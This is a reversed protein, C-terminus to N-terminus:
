VWLSLRQDLQATALALHGLLHGSPAGVSLDRLGEEDRLPGDFAVNLLYVVLEPEVRPDLYCGPHDLLAVRDPRGLRSPGGM